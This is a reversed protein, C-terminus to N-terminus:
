LCMCERYANYVAIMGKIFAYVYITRGVQFSADYLARAAAIGAFGGGIVIVSPSSAHRREVNSYCLAVCFYLCLLIIVLLCSKCVVSLYRMCTNKMMDGYFKMLSDLYLSTVNLGGFECLASFKKVVNVMYM